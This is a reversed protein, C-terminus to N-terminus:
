KINFGNSVKSMRGSVRQPQQCHGIITNLKKCDVNCKNKEYLNTEYAHFHKRIHKISRIYTYLGSLNIIFHYFCLSLFELSKWHISNKENLLLSIHLISISLCIFL